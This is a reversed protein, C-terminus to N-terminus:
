NFVNEARVIDRCIKRLRKVRNSYPNQNRSHEINFIPFNFKEILAKETAEIDYEVNDCACFAVGLNGYMFDTLRQESDECFSYHSINAPTPNIGRMVPKLDLKEKLAAGLSRRLTSKGSDKLHMDFVRKALTEDKAIGIYIIDFLKLQAFETEAFCIETIIYFAYFGTEIPAIAESIPVYSKLAKIIWDM